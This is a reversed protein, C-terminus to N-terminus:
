DKPRKSQRRRYQRQAQARACEPSCYKVGKTRHQGHLARGQQRVFLRGCTENACKRYEAEEVIHNFLELCMVCYLPIMEGHSHPGPDVSIEAPSHTLRPSFPKLGTRLGEGLFQLVRERQDHGWQDIGIPIVEWIPSFWDAEEVELEGRAVRWAMTMDKILAAGWRFEAYTETLGSMWRRGDEKEPAGAVGMAADLRSAELEVALLSFGTLSPLGFYNHDWEGCWEPSRVSLAEVREVFGIVAEEDDIDLEVIELYTEGFGPWTQPNFNPTILREGDSAAYQM